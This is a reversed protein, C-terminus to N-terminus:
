RNVSESSLSIILLGVKTTRHVIMIGFIELWPMVEFFRTLVKVISIDLIKLLGEELYHTSLDLYFPDIPGFVRFRPYNGVPPAVSDRSSPSYHFLYPLYM